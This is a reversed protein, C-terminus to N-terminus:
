CGLTQGDTDQEDTHITDRECGFQWYEQAIIYDICIILSSFILSLLQSIALVKGKRRHHLIVRPGDARGLHYERLVLSHLDGNHPVFAVQGVRIDFRDQVSHIVAFELFQILQDARQSYPFSSLLARSFLASKRARLFQWIVQMITYNPIALQSSSHCSPFPM